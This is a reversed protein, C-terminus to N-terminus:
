PPSGPRVCRRPPPRPAPACVTRTSPTRTRCPSRTPGAAPRATRTTRWSATPEGPHGPDDEDLQWVGPPATLHLRRAAPIRQNDHVVAWPKGIRGSTRHAEDVIILDWGALGAQHARELTGLGLSAYTAFVTVLDLSRTGEVLEDARHHEPLVGGWRCETVHEPSRFVRANGPHGDGM